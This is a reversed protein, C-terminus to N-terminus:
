PWQLSAPEPVALATDLPDPGVQESVAGPPVACGEPPAAEGDAVVQTAQLETGVPLVAM